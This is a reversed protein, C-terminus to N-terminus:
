IYLEKFGEKVKKFDRASLRGIRTSFRRTDVSRAESLIVSVSYEGYQIPIYWNGIRNQTTTPLVLFKNRSLKKFIVAPRTFLYGKGNIEHGINEGFSIWWVEGETVHPLNQNSNHLEEKVGMWEAFRKVIQGFIKKM